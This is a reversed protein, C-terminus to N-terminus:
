YLSLAFWVSKGTDQPTIGWRTALSEVIKLGRGGRSEPPPLLPHVTPLEAGGDTVAVTLEARGLQVSLTVEARGHSVANTVLESTMILADDLVAPALHDAHRRLYLRALAPADLSLPLSM